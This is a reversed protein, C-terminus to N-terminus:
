ARRPTRDRLLGAEPMPSERIDTECKGSLAVNSPLEDNIENSCRNKLTTDEM